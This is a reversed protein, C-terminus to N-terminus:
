VILFYFLFPWCCCTARQFESNKEKMTVEGVPVWTWVFDYKVFHDKAHKVTWLVVADHLTGKKSVPTGM